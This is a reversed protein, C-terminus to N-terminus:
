KKGGDYDCVYLSFTDNMYHPNYIEPSSPRLFDTDFGFYADINENDFLHVYAEGNMGVTHPNVSLYAAPSDYYVVPGDITYNQQAAM